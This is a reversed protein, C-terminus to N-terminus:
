YCVSFVFMYLGYKIFGTSVSTIATRIKDTWDKLDNESKCRFRIRADSAALGMAVASVHPVFTIDFRKQKLNIYVYVSLFLIHLIYMIVKKTDKRIAIHYNRLYITGKPHNINNNASSKSSRKREIKIPCEDYYLLFSPYLVVYRQNYRHMNESKKKLNGQKIPLLEHDDSIKTKFTEVDDGSSYINDDDVKISQANAHLAADSSQSMVSDKRFSASEDISLSNHLASENFLGRSKLFQENSSDLQKRVSEVEESLLQNTTQLLKIDNAQRQKEQELKSIQSELEKIREDRVDDAM